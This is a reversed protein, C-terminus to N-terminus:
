RAKDKDADKADATRADLLGTLGSTRSRQFGRERINEKISKSDKPVTLKASEDVKITKVYENFRDISGTRLGLNLVDLEAKFHVADPRDKTMEGMDPYLKKMFSGPARLGLAELAAMVGKECEIVLLHAYDKPHRAGLQDVYERSTSVFTEGSGPTVFLGGKKLVNKKEWASVRRYFIVTGDATEEPATRPTPQALAPGALLLAAFFAVIFRRLM